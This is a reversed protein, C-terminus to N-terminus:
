EHGNTRGGRIEMSRHSLTERASHTVTDLLVIRSRRGSDNRAIEAIFRDRVSPWFFDVDHNGPLIVITHGDGDDLFKRLGQITPKHAALISTLKEISQSETFCLPFGEGSQTENRLVQHRIVLSFDDRDGSGFRSGRSNRAATSIADRAETIVLAVRQSDRSVSRSHCGKYYV